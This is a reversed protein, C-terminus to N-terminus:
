DSSAAGADLAPQAAPGRRAPMVAAAIAVVGVVAVAVTVVYLGRIGILGALPGGLGVGVISSLSMSVGGFIGQATAATETPAHASIFAVGGVLLCAYAAGQVISWGLLVAPETYAANAAVRLLAIAAGALILNSLGFRRALVPFLLMTPVELAGQIAWAWGVVSAPAGLSELYISFLGQQANIAVWCALSGLLFFLIPRNGLVRGPARLMSPTRWAKTRGPVTAAIFGAAVVAPTAVAFLAGPGQASVLVGVFLACVIFSASGFARVVGYRTRDEGALELVRVDVMPTLGGISISFACAGVALLPTAGAAWLLIASLGALTGALPLLLISRPYRDHLAGWAPGALFGAGWAMALLGGIAAVPLGLGSYYLSIFPMYAAFGAMVVIYVLAARRL